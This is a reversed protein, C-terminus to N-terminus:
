EKTDKTPSLATLLRQAQTPADVGMREFLALSETLRSRAADLDQNEILVLTESLLAYGLSPTDGMRRLLAVSQGVIAAAEALRGLSAYTTGINTLTSSMGKPDGIRRCIELSEEYM